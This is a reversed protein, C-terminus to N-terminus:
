PRRRHCPFCMHRDQYSISPLREDVYLSDYTIFALDKAASVLLAREELLNPPYHSERLAAEIDASSSEDSYLM